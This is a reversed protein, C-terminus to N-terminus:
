KKSLDGKKNLDSIYRASFGVYDNCKRGNKMLSICDLYGFKDIFMKKYEEVYQCKELENLIQITTLVAGCLGDISRPKPIDGSLNYDHKFANYLSNSCNNGNKHYVRSCNEYKDLIDVINVGM